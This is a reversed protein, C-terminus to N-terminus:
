KRKIIEGKNDIRYYVYEVIEEKEFGSYDDIRKYKKIYNEVSTDNVLETINRIQIITDNLMESLSYEYKPLSNNREPIVSAEFNSIISGNIDFTSIVCSTIADFRTIFYTAVFISDLKYFPKDDGQASFLDDKENIEIKPNYLKLLYVPIDDQYSTLEIFYEFSTTDIETSVIRDISEPSKNSEVKEVNSNCSFTIILLVYLIRKM